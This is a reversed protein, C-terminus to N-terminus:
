ATKNLLSKHSRMHNSVSVKSHFVKVCFKCQYCGKYKKLPDTNKINNKKKCAILHSKFDFVNIEMKCFDCGITKKNKKSAVLSYDHYTYKHVSLSQIDDFRKSCKPCKFMGPTCCVGRVQHSRLGNLNNFAKCCQWCVLKNGLGFHQRHHLKFFTFTHFIFDCSPKLCSFLSMRSTRKNKPYNIKNNQVQNKNVTNRAGPILETKATTPIKLKMRITTGTQTQSELCEKIHDVMDSLEPSSEECYLCLYNNNSDMLLGHHKKLKHYAFQEMNNFVINCTYCKFINVTVCHIHNGNIVPDSSKIEKYCRNCMVASSSMGIHLQYHPIFDEKSRSLIHCNPVLCTFFNKNNQSCDHNLFNKKQCISCYYLKEDENDKCVPRYGSTSPINRRAESCISDDSSEEDDSICICENKINDNVSVSEGNDSANANLEDLFDQMDELEEYEDDESDDLSLDIIENSPQLQVSDDDSENAVYETKTNHFTLSHSSTGPKSFSSNSGSSCPDNLNRKYIVEQKNFSLNQSSNLEKSTGPKTAGFKKLAIYNIVIESEAAKKKMEYWNFISKFCNDCVMKPKVDKAEVKIGLLEELQKKLIFDGNVATFIHVFKMSRDSEPELLCVRCLDFNESHLHMQSM